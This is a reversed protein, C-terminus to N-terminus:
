RIHRIILNSVNIDNSGSQYINDIEYNYITFLLYLEIEGHRGHQKNMMSEKSSVSCSQHLLRNHPAQM